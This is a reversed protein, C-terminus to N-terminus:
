CRYTRILVLIARSVMRSPIRSELVFSLIMRRKTTGSLPRRPKRAPLDGFPGGEGRGRGVGGQLVEKVPLDELPLDEALLM